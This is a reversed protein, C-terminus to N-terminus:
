CSEYYEAESPRPMLLDEQKVQLASALRLLQGETPTHAGSELSQLVTPTLNTHQALARITYSQRERHYRINAAFLKPEILFSMITGGQALNYHSCPGFL